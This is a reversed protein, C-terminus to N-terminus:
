NLDEETIEFVYKEYEGKHKVLKWSSIVKSENLLDTTKFISKGDDSPYYTKALIGNSKLQISDIEYEYGLIIGGDSSCLNAELFSNNVLIEMSKVKINGKFYLLELNKDTKNEIVYERCLGNCGFVLFSNVIVVFLRKM